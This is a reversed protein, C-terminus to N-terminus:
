ETIQVTTSGVRNTLTVTGPRIASVDGKVTFPQTYTFQSGFGSAATGQFWKSFLDEVPITIEGSQLTSGGAVSFRFTAQTLERATCFGTIEVELGSAKRVLRASAIEPAAREVQATRVPAPSQTLDVGASQLRASVVIQGAVTGTQIAINEDSFVADTQGAPISFNATRGGTSFQVSADAAGSDPAFTLILQGSIAVPFPADLYLYIRPQKAPGVVDPLGGMTVAPVAPLSISMRFLDVATSHV